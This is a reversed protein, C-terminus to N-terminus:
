TRPSLSVSPRLHISLVLSRSSSTESPPSCISVNYLSCFTIRSFSHTIHLHFLRSADHYPAFTRCFVYLRTFGRRVAAHFRCSPTFASSSAMQAFRPRHTPYFRASPNNSQVPPALLCLAVKIIPHTLHKSVRWRVGMSM